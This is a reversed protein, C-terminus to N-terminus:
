ADLMTISGDQPLAVLDEYFFQRLKGTVVNEAIFGAMNVPDKASSYPPAYALDIDKLALVTLGAQMATALVDLRKDVGDFGVIQAGIIKQSDRAFL